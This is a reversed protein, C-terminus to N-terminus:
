SGTATTRGAVPERALRYGLVIPLPLFFPLLWPMLIFAILIGGVGILFGALPRPVAVVIGVIALGLGIVAPVMGSWERFGPSLLLGVLLVVQLIAVLGIAVLQGTSIRM